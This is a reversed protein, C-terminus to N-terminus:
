HHNIGEDLGLQKFYGNGGILDLLCIAGDIYSNYSLKHINIRGFDRRVQQLIEQTEREDPLHNFEDLLKLTNCMGEYALNPKSYAGSAIRMAEKTIFGSAVKM